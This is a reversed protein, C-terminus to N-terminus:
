NQSGGGPVADRAPNEETLAFTLELVAADTRPASNRPEPVLADFKGTRWQRIRRDVNERSVRM